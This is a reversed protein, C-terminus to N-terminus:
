SFLREWVLFLKKTVVYNGADDIPEFYGNEAMKVFRRYLEGRFDEENKQLHELIFKEKADVFEDFTFTKRKMMMAAMFIAVTWGVKVKLPNDSAALKKGRDTM